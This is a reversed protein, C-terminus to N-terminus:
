CRAIFQAIWSLSLAASVSVPPFRTSVGCRCARDCPFVEHYRVYVHFLSQLNEADVNFSNGAFCLRTYTCSCLSPLCLRSLTRTAVSQRLGCVADESVSVSASTGRILSARNWTYVREASEDNLQIPFKLGLIQTQSAASICGRSALSAGMSSMMVFGVTM